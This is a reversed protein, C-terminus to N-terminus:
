RDENAEGMRREWEDRSEVRALQKRGETRKKREKKKICTIDRNCFSVFLYYAFWPLPVGCAGGASRCAATVLVVLLM